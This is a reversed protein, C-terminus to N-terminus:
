NTSAQLQITQGKVTEIDYTWVKRLQLVESGNTHVLPTKVTPTYFFPNPNPSSNEVARMKVDSKLPTYSRIRCNGGVISKIELLQISGNKWKMRVVEFGGRARLGKVSGDAWDDPLAPL